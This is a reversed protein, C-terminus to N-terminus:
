YRVVGSQGAVPEILGEGLEAAVQGGQSIDGGRTIFIPRRQLGLAPLAQGHHAVQLQNAAQKAARQFEPQQEVAGEVQLLLAVVYAQAAEAIVAEAWAVEQQQGLAGSNSM